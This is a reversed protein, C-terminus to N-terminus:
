GKLVAQLQVRLKRIVAAFDTARTGFRHSAKSYAADTSDLTEYSASLDDLQSQISDIEEDVWAGDLEDGNQQAELIANSFDVLSDVVDDANTAFRDRSTQIKGTLQQLSDVSSLLPEVQKVAKGAQTLVGGRVAAVSEVQELELRTAALDDSLRQQATKAAAAQASATRLEGRARDGSSAENQWLVGFTAAAAFACLLVAAVAALRIRRRRRLLRGPPLELGCDPCFDDDPELRAGCRACATSGGDAGDGVVALPAVKPPADRASV